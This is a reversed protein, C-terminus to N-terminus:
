RSPIPTSLLIISFGVAVTYALKTLADMEMGRVRSVEKGFPREWAYFKVIRIGTLIENM